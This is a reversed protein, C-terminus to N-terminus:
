EVKLATKLVDLNQEMISLYAAGDKIDESTTSQLSDMELIKQNGSRTNQRITDAIKRDGGKIMLISSLNWEDVKDALFAVTRFSVESEASCGAFAAYYSLGYDDALYRFPFRDGFLLLKQKSEDVAEQYQRDLRSLKEAYKKANERYIDGQGPDLDALKEALVECFFIANKLSLWVHEDYAGDEDEVGHTEMGEVVEEAKALDGLVDLLSVAERGPRETQELTEEVWRDSEGGTYIFLDCSAIDMIDKVAPQYSHVDAGNDILLELDVYEAQEGLIERVWDYEPFVAALIKVSPDSSTDKVTNGNEPSCASLCTNLALIAFIFVLCRTRKRTM